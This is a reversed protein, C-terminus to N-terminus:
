RFAAKTSFLGMCLLATTSKLPLNTLHAFRLTGVDQPQRPWITPVACNRRQGGEYPANQTLFGAYTQTLTQRNLPPARLWAYRLAVVPGRALIPKWRNCSKM